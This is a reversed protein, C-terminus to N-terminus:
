TGEIFARQTTIHVIPGTKRTSQDHPLLVEVTVIDRLNVPTPPDFGILRRFGLEEAFQDNTYSGILRKQCTM